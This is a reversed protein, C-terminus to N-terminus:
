SKTAIEVSINTKRNEFHKETFNVKQRMNCTHMCRNIIVETKLFHHLDIMINTLLCKRSVEWVLCCKNPVEKGSKNKVADEEWKIRHLM